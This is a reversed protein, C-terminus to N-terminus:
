LDKIWYISHPFAWPSEPALIWYGARIFNNASPLNDTTDSVIHTWGNRKARAELVRMHRQQLSHGRHGHTVGVRIFYGATPTRDSQVLGAFSVPESDKYGLWWHGNDFEPLPAADLFTLRHLEALVEAIDEDTADVERIRYTM